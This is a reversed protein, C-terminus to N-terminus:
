SGATTAKRRAPSVVEYGCRRVDDVTWMRKPQLEPQAMLTKGDPRVYGLKVIVDALDWGDYLEYFTKFGSYHVPDREYMWRCAPSCFTLTKGGSELTCETSADPRPFITPLQCVQCFGPLGGLAKTVLMGDDPDTMSRYAEWFKGYYGYWGPYKKEFWEMESEDIPDYRHYFVPWAGFLYVAATHSAWEINQVIDPLWRPERIGYKELKKYFGGYYDELLWRYSMEKGSETKKKTLYDAFLLLPVEFGVHTRWSWKDLADQILPINRDDQLLTMLTAYGNAMHRSEDSQITLMTSAMVSDGSLTAATSLGVFFMNSYGTEVLSQLGISGELADCTLFDETFARAIGAGVGNGASIQAIDYGVPDEWTRMHHRITNMELHSHRMEDLQQMMYGHRLESPAVVRVMRGMQRGAGYELAPLIALAFKMGEMWRPEPQISQLRSAAELLAYHRSEKEREMAMYERISTKFPDTAKKPMHFRTPEVYMEEPAIYTPQWDINKVRDYAKLLSRPM